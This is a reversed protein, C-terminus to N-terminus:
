KSSFVGLSINASLRGNMNISQDSNVARNTMTAKFESIYQGKDYLYEKSRRNNRFQELYIEWLLLHAYVSQATNQRLILYLPSFFNGTVTTISTSKKTEANLSAELEAVPAKVTAGLDGVFYSGCSKQYFLSPFGHIPTLVSQGFNILQDNIGVVRKANIYEQENLTGTIIKNVDSPTLALFLLNTASIPIDYIKTTRLKDDDYGSVIERPIYLRQDSRIIGCAEKAQNEYLLQIKQGLTGEQYPITLPSPFNKKQQGEQKQLYKKVARPQSFAIQYTFLSLTLVFFTPSFKM